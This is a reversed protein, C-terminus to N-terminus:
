NSSKLIPKLYQLVDESLLDRLLFTFSDTVRNENDLAFAVYHLELYDKGNVNTIYARFWPNEANFKNILFLNDYTKEMEGFTFFAHLTGAEYIVINMYVSSDFFKKATITTHVALRDKTEEQVKLGIREGEALLKEKIRTLNM